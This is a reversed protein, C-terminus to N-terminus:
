FCADLVEIVHKVPVSRGSREMGARLQLMCGVNATVVLEATTSAIDNMKADLIKMSLHNQTVNYSGASGCCQDSHPMEELE